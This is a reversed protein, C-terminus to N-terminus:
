GVMWLLIVLGGNDLEQPGMGVEFQPGSVISVFHLQTLSTPSVLVSDFLAPFVQAFKETCVPGLCIQALCVPLFPCILFSGVTVPGFLAPNVLLPHKPLMKKPIPNPLIQWTDPRTPYITFYKKRINPLLTWTNLVMKPLSFQNEFWM